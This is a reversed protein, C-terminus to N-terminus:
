ISFTFFDFGTMRSVAVVALATLVSTVLGCAAVGFSEAINKM